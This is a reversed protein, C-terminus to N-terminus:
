RLATEVIIQTRTLAKDSGFAPMSVASFTRACGSVAGASVACGSVAGGQEAGGISLWNM